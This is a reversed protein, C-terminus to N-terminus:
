SVPRSRWTARSTTLRLVLGCIAASSNKLWFVTAVWRRLMKWLIPTVVSVARARATSRVLGVAFGRVLYGLEAVEPGKQGSPMASAVFRLGHYGRQYCAPIISRRAAPLELM